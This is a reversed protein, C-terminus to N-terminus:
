LLDGLGGERLKVPGEGQLLWGSSCGGTYKEETYVYRRNLCRLVMDSLMQPFYKAADRCKCIVELAVYEPATM